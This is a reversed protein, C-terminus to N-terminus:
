LFAKLLDQTKWFSGPLASTVYTQVNNTEQHSKDKKNNSKKKIYQYWQVSGLSPKTVSATLLEILYLVEM